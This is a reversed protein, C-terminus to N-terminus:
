KDFYVTACRITLCSSEELAECIKIETASTLV